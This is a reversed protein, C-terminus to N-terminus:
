CVQWFLSNNIFSEIFYVRHKITRIWHRDLLSVLLDPQKCNKYFLEFVFGYQVKIDNYSFPLCFFRFCMVYVLFVTSHCLLFHIYIPLFGHIRRGQM